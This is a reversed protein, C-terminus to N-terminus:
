DMGHPCILCGFIVMIANVFLHVSTKACDYAHGNLHLGVHSSKLMLSVQPLELSIEVMPLAPISLGSVIAAEEFEGYDLRM